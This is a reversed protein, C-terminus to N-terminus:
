GIRERAGTAYDIAWGNAANPVEVAIDISGDCSVMDVRVSRPILEGGQYQPTAAYYLPCSDDAQSDLYDRAMFETRAMGGSYQGDTQASGVNQTRTGTVLNEVVADGGLSDAVLHSRNWFWGNYDKSGSVDPLAPILEEGNDRPWGSPDSTIDQRGASQAANRLSPTLEGYACAARGLEDLPCYEVVGPASPEYAREADGLVIVYDGGSSLLAGPAPEPSSTYAPGSPGGLGSVADFLGQGGVVIGIIMALFGSIGAAIKAAKAKTTKTSRSM